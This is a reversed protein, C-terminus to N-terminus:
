SKARLSIHSCAEALQAIQFNTLHKCAHICIGHPRARVTAPTLHTSRFFAKTHMTPSTASCVNLHAPTRLGTVRLRAIAHQPPEGVVAGPFAVRTDLGDRQSVPAAVRPTLSRSLEDGRACTAGARAASAHCCM